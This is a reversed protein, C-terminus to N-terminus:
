FFVAIYEDMLRMESRLYPMKVCHMVIFDTFLAFPWSIPITKIFIFALSPPTAHLMSQDKSDSLCQTINLEDFLEYIEQM